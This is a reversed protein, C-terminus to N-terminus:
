TKNLIDRYVTIFEQITKEYNYKENVTNITEESLRKRLDENEILLKLKISLDKEDSVSFLLGNKNNIIINNIGSTNSGIIALGNFMAELLSKPTGEFLSPIIYLDTLKYLEPVKEYPAIGFFTVFSDFGEKKVKKELSKRMPGDGVFLLKLHNKEIYERGLNIFTNLLIDSGKIKKISGLSLIIIDSDSFGYTSRLKNKKIKTKLFPILPLIVKIKKDTWKEYKKQIPTSVAVVADAKQFFLKPFIPIFSPLLRGGHISILYRIGFMKKALLIPYYIFISNSTYPIHIIDIKKELKKLILLIHLISTPGILLLTRKRLKFFSINETKWDYDCCTIINVNQGQAALTKALYYNFIEIGGTNCPYIEPSIILINVKDGAM